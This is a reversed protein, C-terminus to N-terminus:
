EAAPTPVDSPEVPADPLPAVERFRFRGTGIRLDPFAPPLVAYDGADLSTGLEIATGGDYEFNGVQHWSGDAQTAFVPFPLPHGSAEVVGFGPATDPTAAIPFAICPSLRCRRQM